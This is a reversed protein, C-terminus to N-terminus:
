CLEELEENTVLPEAGINRSRPPCGRRVKCGARQRIGREHGIFELTEQM